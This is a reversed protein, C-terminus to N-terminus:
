SVQRQGFSEGCETWVKGTYPERRITHPFKYQFDSLGRCSVNIKTGDPFRGDVFLQDLRSLDRAMGGTQNNEVAQWDTPVVGKSDIFPVAAIEIRFGDNGVIPDVAVDLAPGSGVNRWQLPKIQPRQGPVYEASEFTLLIIPRISGEFQKESNVRLEKTERTYEILVFFSSIAVIATVVAVIGTMVSAITNIRQLQLADPAAQIWHWLLLAGLAFLLALM